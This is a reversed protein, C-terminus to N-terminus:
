PLQSFDCRLLTKFIADIHNAWILGQTTKESTASAQPHGSQNHTWCVDCETCRLHIGGPSELRPFVLPCLSVTEEENKTVNMLSREEWSAQGEQKQM